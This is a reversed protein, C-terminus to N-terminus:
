DNSYTITDWVIIVCTLNTSLLYLIFKEAFCFVTEAHSFARQFPEIKFEFKGWIYVLIFWLTNQSNGGQNYKESSSHQWRQLWWSYGHKGSYKYTRGGL